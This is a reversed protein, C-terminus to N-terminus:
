EGAHEVVDAVAGGAPLDSGEAGLRAAILGVLHAIDVPKAVYDSAGAALCKERDGKMAKATVAIVPLRHFAKRARIARITDYGDMEPMMIDVLVADVDVEDRLRGLGDAATEAYRTEIGYRELASTL